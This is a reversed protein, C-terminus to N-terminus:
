GSPTGHHIKEVNYSLKNVHEDDLPTGLFASLARIVAVSVAAGSGLGAAVPITSALKLTCAPIHTVGLITTVSKVVAVLPHGPKLSDLQCDLNVEPALVRMMGPTGLIDPIITAKARLQTVPVAIAPQGYM